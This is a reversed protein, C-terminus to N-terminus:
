EVGTNEGEGDGDGDVEAEAEAESFAGLTGLTPETAAECIGEGM